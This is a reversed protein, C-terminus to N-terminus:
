YVACRVQMFVRFVGQQQAFVSALTPALIVAFGLTFLIVNLCSLAATLMQMRWEFAELRASLLLAAARSAPRMVGAGNAMMWAAGAHSSTISLLPAAALTGGASAFEAALNAFSATRATAGPLGSAPQSTFWAATAAAVDARLLATGTAGSADVTAEARVAIASAASTASGIATAAEPPFDYVTWGFRTNLDQEAPLAVDATADTLLAHHSEEVAKCAAALAQATANAETLTVNLIGDGIRTLTGAADMGVELARQRESAVLLDNVAAAYNSALVREAVLMGIALAGALLFLITLVWRLRHLPPEMVKAQDAIASRLAGAASEDEDANRRKAEEGRASALAQLRATRATERATFLAAEAALPGQTAPDLLAAEDVDAAASAGPVRRGAPATDGAQKRILAALQARSVETRPTAVLALDKSAVAKPAAHATGSESAQQQGRGDVKAKSDPVAAVRARSGTSANAQPQSSARERPRGAPSKSSVASASDASATAPAPAPTVAAGNRKAPTAPGSSQSTRRAKSLVAAYSTMAVSSRRVKGAGAPDGGGSSDSGGAGVAPMPSAAGAAGDRHGGGGPTSAGSTHPSPLLMSNRRGAAAVAAAPTAATSPPFGGAGAGKGAAPSAFGAPSTADSVAGSDGHKSPMAASGAAGPGEDTAGAGAAGHGHGHGHGPTVAMTVTLPARAFIDDSSRIGLVDEARDFCKRAAKADRRVELLFVAYSQLRRPLSSLAIPSTPLLLSVLSAIVPSLPPM